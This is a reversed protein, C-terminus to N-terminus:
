STAFSLSKAMMPLASILAYLLTIAFVFFCSSSYVEDKKYPAVIGLVRPFGTPKLHRKKERGLILWAEAVGDYDGYYLVSLVKVAPLIVSDAVSGKIPKFNSRLM